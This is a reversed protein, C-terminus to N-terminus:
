GSGTTRGSFRRRLRWALGTLALVGVGSGVGIIAWPPGGGDNDSPTKGTSTQSDADPGQTPTGTGTPATPEVTGGAAPTSTDTGTIGTAQATSTADGPTGGPGPTSQGTPQQCSSGPAQNVGIRGSNRVAWAHNDQDPNLFFSSGEDVIDICTAGSARADFLLLALRGVGNAGTTVPALQSVGIETTGAPSPCPPVGGECTVFIMDGSPKFTTCAHGTAKEMYFQAAAATDCHVAGLFDLTAPNYEIRVQWAGIDEGGPVGGTRDPLGVVLEVLIDEGGDGLNAAAVTFQKATEISAVASATNAAAANPDTDVSITGIPASADAETMAGPALFPLLAGLTLLACLAFSRKRM